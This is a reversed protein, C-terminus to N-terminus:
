NEIRYRLWVLDPDFVEANIRAMTLAPPLDSGYWRHSGANTLCPHVLLSVEDVLRLDLLARILQGGSDVRVLQAGTRSALEPLAQRLDVRRTGVVLEPVPPEGVPPSSAARLPLVGSWYGCDRLAEWQSVRRRGDVVALLPAGTRPGPRPAAALEAEQALITDAGTLTIDEQWTPLLSYFRGIDVGFGTTYGDLSVAVHVVVYPRAAMVPM